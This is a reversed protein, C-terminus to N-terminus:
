LASSCIRAIGAVVLMFCHSPVARPRSLSPVGAASARKLSHEVVRLPSLVWGQCLVVNQEKRSLGLALLLLELHHKSAM